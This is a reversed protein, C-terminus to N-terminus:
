KVIIMKRISTFDTTELKYFYVGSSLNSANFNINYSGPNYNENALTSVLRGTVDYVNLKVLGQKAIDVKISTSPNFPNPFNQYLYFKEPIETNTNTLGTPSVTLTITRVHVPTGNPGTAKVTITYSGSTVGGSTKMRLRLSDPYTTLSDLLQASSKNVFQLSLTGAAPTPSVTASFKVSNTYLKVAPVSCYSFDSDNTAAITQIAPQVRLAYDPFYAGMNAATCNRHDSWIAFGTVPNAVIADYDGRYCNTNAGCAPCPWNTTAANTLKQNTVFSTGGTTSYTAYVDTTYNSPGNRTDYWKIYLKGTTQECWIAPFWQDSSSPNANDNVVIYNSWTAGQDTSYQLKIDPKNGNGAPINSSYVLYLRGRYPGNSNDMAIMPYTRHRANNIVLRGASNYTGSYGAVTLSSMVQFSTGGDTSRHFGYTANQSGGSSTVLIVCGGNTSGNPGVAIMAGPLSHPSATYTTTWSAGNDTSRSFPAGGSGTISAYAYNAYPGTGTVEVGITNRDFGSVSLVPATWTNGNNTSRYVYQGNVGSGYILTGNALYGSWPDCCTGGPYSPNFLTWNLGGNTTNWANQTGANVGFFIWLPNNQNITANQEYFDTGMEFNDFGTADTVTLPTSSQGTSQFHSYAERTPQDINPNNDDFKPIDYAQLLFTIIVGIFLVFYVKFSYLKKM